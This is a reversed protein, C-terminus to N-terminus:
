KLGIGRLLANRWHTIGQCGLQRPRVSLAWDTKDSGFDAM